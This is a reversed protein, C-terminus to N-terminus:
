ETQTHSEQPRCGDVRRTWVLTGQCARGLSRTSRLGMPGLSMTSASSTTPLQAPPHGSDDNDKKNNWNKNWKQKKMTEKQKWKIYNKNKKNKTKTKKTKLKMKLWTKEFNKTKSKLWIKLNSHTRLDQM